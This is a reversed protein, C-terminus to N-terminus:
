KHPQSYIHLLYNQDTSLEVENLDIDIYESPIPDFPVVPLTHCEPLSRGVPGKYGKPGSTEGDLTVVLHRLPLENAHLQCSFWHLPRQLHRELRAIVGNKDGTNVATGDCGIGRLDELSINKRQCFETIAHKIDAATGSKPSVHGLLRGGPHQLLVIHEETVTERRPRNGRM